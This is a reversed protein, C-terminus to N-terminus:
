RRRSLTRAVESFRTELSDCVANCLDFVTPDSIFCYVSNGAQRRGIMGAEQLLRLHKSVNPQTSGVAEVLEGVTREGDHLAQLLQIRLPEGLIRFRAAILDIVEPTLTPASKRSM